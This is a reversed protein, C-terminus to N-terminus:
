QKGVFLRERAILPRTTDDARQRALAIRAQADPENLLVSVQARKFLAMPYDPHSPPVRDLAARADEFRRSALYLVGLELDHAFAAPQLARAREFDAIAAATRGADMAIQGQRARVTALAEVATLRDPSEAVVQELLWAARDWNKTRVYHLGLYTKVDQSEPAIVAARRFMEVAKDNHGLASHASALRLAADINHPDAALIREFLPISEAYRGDAFLGSAREIVEILATMEAPRPADKRVVPAAGASVYGLSALRRKADADLADPAHAAAPSPM